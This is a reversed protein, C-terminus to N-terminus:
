LKWAVPPGAFMMHNIEKAMDEASVEQKTKKMLAYVASFGDDYKEPHNYHDTIVDAYWKL